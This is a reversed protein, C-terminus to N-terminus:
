HGNTMIKIQQYHLVTARSQGQKQVQTCKIYEEKRLHGTDSWQHSRAEVGGQGKKTHIVEVATAIDKM